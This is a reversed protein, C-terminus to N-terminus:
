FLFLLSNFLLDFMLSAQVKRYNYFFFSISSLTIDNSKLLCNMAHINQLILWLEHCTRPSYLEQQPFLDKNRGWWGAFTLELRLSLLSLVPLNICYKCYMSDSSSLSCQERLWCLLVFHFLRGRHLQLFYIFNLVHQCFQM